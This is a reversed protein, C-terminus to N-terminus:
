ALVGRGAQQRELFRERNGRGGIVLGIGPDGQGCKVLYASREPWPLAWLGGVCVALM